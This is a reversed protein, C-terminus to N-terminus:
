VKHAITDPRERAFIENAWILVVMEQEGINTIDHAWGPITEVVEPTDGSVCHVHTEGTDIQRFQFRAEGKVVLFKETKTHHYHGGRTIGPHATFYSFQGSDHTKLVEVFFGRPDEHKKLPYSFQKPAFYTIFTSYLARTLGTGVPETILSARSGKFTRLCQALDGVTIPYVPAVEQYGNYPPRSELVRLFDSVVDDVYVLHIIAEPDNIQIPLDRAINHCFTAVASNYNPRCWKGFVNPLRYIYTPTGTTASLARLSEEALAKSQGYMTNNEAQISSPYLIPISRGCSRVAECIFATLDTNGTKFETEIKPRNVGALHFIFDAVAIKETLATPPEGELFTLIEINPRERLHIILNKGIFGNAGTVFVKM